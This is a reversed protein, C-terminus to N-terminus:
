IQMLDATEASQTATDVIQLAWGTTHLGSSRRAYEQSQFLEQNLLGTRCEQPRVAAVDQQESRLVGIERDTCSGDVVHPLPAGPRKCSM